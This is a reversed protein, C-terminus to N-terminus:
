YLDHLYILKWGKYDKIEFEYLNYKKGSEDTVLNNNTKNFGAWRWPGKGFQKSKEIKSVVGDSPQWLLKYLLKEQNSIFIVGDPSVILVIGDYISNVKEVIIDLSQKIVTVGLPKSSLEGYVPYSFYMGRKKSTTGLAMYLYSFGEMAKKFYPRFSFDKGIFSKPSAYNSSIITIGNSNILYCVTADLFTCFKDLTKNSDNLTEKNNKELLLKELEDWNTLTKISKKHTSIRQSIYDNLFYAISQAKAKEERIKSKKLMSFYFFGGFSVSVIILLLIFVAKKSKM